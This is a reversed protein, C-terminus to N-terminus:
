EGKTSVRVQYKQLPTGLRDVAAMVRAMETDLDSVAPPLLGQVGEQVREVYPM